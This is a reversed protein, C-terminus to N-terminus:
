ARIGSEPHALTGSGSPARRARWAALAPALPSGVARLHELDHLDLRLTGPRASSDLFGVERLLDAHPGRASSLAHSAGRALALEYWARVVRYRLSSLARTPAIVLGCLCADVDLCLRVTAVPTGDEEFAALDVADPRVVLPAGADQRFAELLAREAETAIRISDYYVKPSAM